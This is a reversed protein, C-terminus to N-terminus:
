ITGEGKDEAKEEHKESSDNRIGKLSDHTFNRKCMALFESNLM